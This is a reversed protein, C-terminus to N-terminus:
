KLTHIMSDYAIKDGKNIRLPTETVTKESIRRHTIAGKMSTLFSPILFYPEWLFYIPYFM